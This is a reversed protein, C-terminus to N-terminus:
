NLTLLILSMKVTWETPMQIHGVIAQYDTFQRQISNTGTHGTDAAKMMLLWHCGTYSVQIPVLVVTLNSLSCATFREPVRIFAIRSVIIIVDPIRVPQKRYHRHPWSTSCAGACIDNPSFQYVSYGDM